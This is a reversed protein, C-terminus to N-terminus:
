RHTEHNEASQYQISALPQNVIQDRVRMTDLSRVQMSVRMSLGFHVQDWLQTDAEDHGQYRLRYRRSKLQNIPKM